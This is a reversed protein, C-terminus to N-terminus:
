LIHCNELEYDTMTNGDFEHICYENKRYDFMFKTQHTLNVEHMIHEASAALMAKAELYTILCETSGYKLSLRIAWSLSLVAILILFFIIFYIM